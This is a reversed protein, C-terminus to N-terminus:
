LRLSQLKGGVRELTLNSTCTRCVWALAAPWNWCTRSCRSLKLYAAEPQPWCSAHLHLKALASAARLNCGPSRLKCLKACLKCSARPPASMSRCSSPHQMPVMQETCRTAHVVHVLERVSRAPCCAQDRWGMSCSSNLWWWAVHEVHSAASSPRCAQWQVTACWMYM